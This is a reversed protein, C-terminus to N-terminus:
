RFSYFQALFVVFLIENGCVDMFMEAVGLNRGDAYVTAMHTGPLPYMSVIIVGYFELRGALLSEGQREENDVRPRVGTLM